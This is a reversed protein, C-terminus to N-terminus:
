PARVMPMKRSPRGSSSRAASLADFNLGSFVGFDIEAPLEAYAVTHLETRRMRAGGYAEHVDPSEHGVQLRTTRSEIGLDRIVTSRPM